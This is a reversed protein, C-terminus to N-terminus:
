PDSPRLDDTTADATATRITVDDLPLATAHFWLELADPTRVRGQICRRRRLIEHRRRWLWAYAALSTRERLLVYALAALDRGLAPILTRLANGGTQHYARLLYRNKLSHYNIFAPLASRGAPVVRRRHEAVAAPEYIVDWGREQFRFCLEADERYSHFLTDFIEPSPDTEADDPPAPVAVDDLAQRRYLTAAGTAGFVREATEFRGQAPEGSGRDLHRWTRTLRMGCADLRAEGDDTAPRLLRGTVAAARPHKDLRDALRAFFDPQPVADANLAAVYPADTLELAANMGGAFGRNEGLAVVQRPVDGAPTNRVVQVSEDSSDCDVIVLDLPRYTQAGVAALCDPLDAASNYTVILVSLRPRPPGDPRPDDAM